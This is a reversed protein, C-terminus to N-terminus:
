KANKKKIAWKGKNNMFSYFDLGSKYVDWYVDLLGHYEKVEFQAAVSPDRDVRLTAGDNVNIGYQIQLMKAYAAKQLPFTKRMKSSTKWDILWPTGDITLVADLHGILGLSESVVEFEIAPRGDVMLVEAGAETLWQILTGACQLQRPTYVKELPHKLLHAEVIEHVATGFAGSEKGIRDAEEMPNSCSKALNKYWYEKWASDLFGLVSTVRIYPSKVKKLKDTSVKVRSVM